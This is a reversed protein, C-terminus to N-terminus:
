FRTTSELIKTATCSATCFVAQLKADAVENDPLDVDEDPDGARAESVWSSFSKTVWDRAYRVFMTCDPLSKISSEM